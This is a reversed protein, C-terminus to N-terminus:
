RQKPTKFRKEWFEREKARAIAPDIAFVHGSKQLLDVVKPPLPTIWGTSHQDRFECGCGSCKRLGLGGSCRSCNHSWAAGGRGGQCELAEAFDLTAVAIADNLVQSTPKSHNLFIDDWEVATCIAVVAKETPWGHEDLELPDQIWIQHCSVWNDRIIQNGWHERAYALAENYFPVNRDTPMVAIDVAPHHYSNPARRPLCHLTPPNNADGGHYWVRWFAGEVLIPPCAIMHPPERLLAITAEQERLHPCLFRVDEDTPNRVPKDANGLRLAYEERTIDFM